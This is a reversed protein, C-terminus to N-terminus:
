LLSSGGVDAQDRPAVPLIWAVVDRTACDRGDDNTLALHLAVILILRRIAEDLFAGSGRSPQRM